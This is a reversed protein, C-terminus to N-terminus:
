VSFAGNRMGTFEIVHHKIQHEVESLSHWFFSLLILKRYRLKGNIHVYTSHTNM